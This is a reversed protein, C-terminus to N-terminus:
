KFLKFGETFALKVLDIAMERTTGTKMLAILHDGISVSNELSAPIAKLLELGKPTLVVNQFGMENDSKYRIYGAENLWRITAFCVREQDYQDSLDAANERDLIDSASLQTPIPFSEYLTAFIVATYENFLEINAKKVM